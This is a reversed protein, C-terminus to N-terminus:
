FPKISIWNGTLDNVFRVCDQESCEGYWYKTKKKGDIKYELKMYGWDPVVSNEVKISVKKGDWDQLIDEAVTIWKQVSGVPPKRSM